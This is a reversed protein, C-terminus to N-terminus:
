GDAKETDKVGELRRLRKEAENKEFKLARHEISLRELKDSVKQLDKKLENTRNDRSKRDILNFIILNEFLACTELKKFSM